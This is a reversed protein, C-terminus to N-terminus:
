GVTRYTGNEMRLTPDPSEPDAVTQYPSKHTSDVTNLGGDEGTLQGNLMDDNLSNKININEM